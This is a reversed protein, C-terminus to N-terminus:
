QPRARCQLEQYTSKTLSTAEELEWFHKLLNEKVNKRFLGQLYQYDHVNSMKVCLFHLNIEGSQMGRCQSPCRSVQKGSVCYLGRTRNKLEMRRKIVTCSESNTRSVKGSSGVKQRPTYYSKTCNEKLQKANCQESPLLYSAVFCKPNVHEEKSPGEMDNDKRGDYNGCIGCMKSWYGSPSSKIKIQEKNIFLELEQMPPRSKWLKEREGAGRPVTKAKDGSFIEARGNVRVITSPGRPVVEITYDKIEVRVIKESGQGPEYTVAFRSSNSCDMALAVQCGRIEAFPLEIAARDMTYLKNGTLRCEAPLRNSTAYKLMQQKYPLRRPSLAAFLPRFVYCTGINSFWTVETETKVMMDMKTRNMRPHMTIEIYNGAGTKAEDEFTSSLQGFYSVKIALYMREIIHRVFSPIAGKHYAAILHVHQYENLMEEMKGYAYSNNARGAILDGLFKSTILSRAMPSAQTQEWLLQRLGKNALVKVHFEKNAGGEMGYSMNISAHVGTFFSDLGTLPSYQKEGSNRANISSEFGNRIRELETEYKKVHGLMVPSEKLETGKSIIFQKLSEIIGAQKNVCSNIDKISQARIPIRDHEACRREIDGLGALSSECQHLIQWISSRVQPIALGAQFALKTLKDEEALINALLIHIRSYIASLVDNIRKGLPEGELAPQTKQIASNQMEALVTDYMVINKVLLNKIEEEFDIVESLEEQNQAIAKTFILQKCLSKAQKLLQTQIGLCKVGEMIIPTMLSQKTIKEVLEEEMFSMVAKAIEIGEHFENLTMKGHSSSFNARWPMLIDGAVTQNIRAQMLSAFLQGEEEPLMPEVSRKRFTFYMIGELRRVLKMAVWDIQSGTRELIPLYKPMEDTVMGPEYKVGQGSYKSFFEYNKSSEWNFKSSHPTVMTTELAIYIRTMAEIQSEQLAAILVLMQTTNTIHTHSEVMHGDIDRIASVAKKLLVPFESVPIDIKQDTVEWPLPLKKQLECQFEILGKLVTHIDSAPIGKLSESIAEAYTHM